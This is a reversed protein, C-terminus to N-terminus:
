FADVWAYRDQMPINLETFARWAHDV